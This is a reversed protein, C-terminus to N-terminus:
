SIAEVAQKFVRIKWGLTLGVVYSTLYCSFLWFAADDTM